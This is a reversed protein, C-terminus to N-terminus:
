NEEGMDEDVVKVHTDDTFTVSYTHPRYYTAWFINPWTNEGAGPSEINVSWDTVTGATLKVDKIPNEDPSGYTVDVGKMKLIIGDFMPSRAEFAEFHGADYWDFTQKEVVTQNTVTDVIEYAPPKTDPVQSIHGPHCNNLVTGFLRINLGTVKKPELVM